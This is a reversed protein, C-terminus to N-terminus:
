DSFSADEEEQSSQVTQSAIEPDVSWKKSFSPYVISDYQFIELANDINQSYSSLDNTKNVQVIEDMDKPMQFPNPNNDSPQFQNESVLTETSPITTNNLIEIIIKYNLYLKQINYQILSSSSYLLEQMFFIILDKKGFIKSSSIENSVFSKWNTIENIIMLTIIVVFYRVAWIQLSEEYSEVELKELLKGYINRLDKIFDNLKKTNSFDYVFFIYHFLDSSCSYIEKLISIRGEILDINKLIQNIKSKFFLNEVNEEFDHFEPSNAKLQKIQDYSLKYNELENAIPKKQQM